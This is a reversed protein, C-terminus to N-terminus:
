RCLLLCLVPDNLLAERCFLKWRLLRSECTLAGLLLKEVTRERYKVYLLRFWLVRVLRWRCWLLMELILRRCVCRESLPAKVM